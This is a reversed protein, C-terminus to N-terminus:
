RRAESQWLQQIKAKVQGAPHAGGLGSFRQPTVILDADPLEDDSWEVDASIVIAYVFGGSKVNRCVENVLGALSPAGYQFSPYTVVRGKFPLEVWDLIDRLRELKETVEYPLERGSLGTVPILCTDLYPRLEEWASAELESFKM